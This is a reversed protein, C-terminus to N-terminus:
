EVLSEIHAICQAYLRGHEEICAAVTELILEQSKKCYPNDENIDELTIEDVYRAAAAIRVPINVTSAILMHALRANAYTGYGLFAWTGSQQPIVFQRHCVSWRNLLKDFRCEMAMPKLMDLALNVKDGLAAYRYPEPIYYLDQILSHVTDICKESLILADVLEVLPAAVIIDSSSMDKNLHLEELAISLDRATDIPASTISQYAM